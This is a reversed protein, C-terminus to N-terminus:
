WRKDEADGRFVVVVVGMAFSFLLFVFQRVTQYMCWCLVHCHQARPAVVFTWRMLLLLMLLMIMLLDSVMSLIPLRVWRSNCNPVCNELTSDSLLM